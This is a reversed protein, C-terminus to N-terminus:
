QVNYMSSCEEKLTLDNMVSCDFMAVNRYLSYSLYILQSFIFCSAWICRPRVDGHKLILCELGMFNLMMSSCYRYEQLM